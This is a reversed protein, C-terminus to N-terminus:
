ENNARADLLMKMEGAIAKAQVYNFARLARLLSEAQPKLDVFLDSVQQLMEDPVLEQEDLLTDIALLWEKRNAMAVPAILTPDSADRQLSRAIKMVSDFAPLFVELTTPATEAHLESELSRAAQYLDEAGLNGAAGKVAHILEKAQAWNGEEIQQILRVRLDAFDHVLYAMLRCFFAFDGGITQEIRKLDFGPLPPFSPKTSSIPIKRQLITKAGGWRRLAAFLKEPVIPKAVCDNMGAAVCAERDEQLVAATMALVPLAQWRPNARIRRTAELGDMVPMHIDMLVLDFSERELWDLAESGNNAVVVEVGAQVLFERAVQQNIANDEVLLVRVDPFVAMEPISQQVRLATNTDGSLLNMLGDFLSSPTLPKSLVTSIGASQAAVQVSEKDTTTSMMLIPLDAAQEPALARIRKILEVGDIGPMKWDILAVDFRTDQLITLAEEGSAALEVVYDWAELMQRLAERTSALDDVVLVRLHVLSPRLATQQSESLACRATFRFVSGKGAESEVCIEGGMMEVLRRSIALGLGTGGYKRTTSADAQNFPTFLRGVQEPTMGIGTDRVSFELLIGGDDRPMGQVSIQVEGRETFKLANGVLNGLVQGLRLPDGRLNLPLNAAIAFVIEIEKHEATAIFLNGINRLVEELSFEVSEIDLRGAEIKSYDLIDNLIGLLSASSLHIKELYDRQKADLNTALALQALGIVANMPTRIEHSMNALFESKARNAGEAARKAELLAMEAAKQDTLDNLVALLLEEGGLRIRTLDVSLWVIRGFSTQIEGEFRNHQGSRMTEIGLDRLGSERAVTSDLLKFGILQGAGTGMINAAAQNAIVVEGGANAVIIGASTEEIVRRSLDGLENIQQEAFLHETLDVFMVLHTEGSPNLHIAFTRFEGSKCRIRAEVPPAHEGALAKGLYDLWTSMVEQRYDPDPYALPWWHAVDPIEEQTYGLIEIFRHNLYAVTLAEGEAVLMPIPANEILQRLRKEAARIETVDVGFSITTLDRGPDGMASNQWSITREVGSRTLIPNEFVKPMLGQAQAKGFIEWVEPYRERPVVLSFWDHGLIEDRFYGTLREAAANFIVVRGTSDLGLVMVNATEILQEAFDKARRLDDQMRIRESIDRYVSLIAPEGDYEVLQANVEVPIHRGDHTVSISDFIAVGKQKVSEAIEHTSVFAEPATIDTPYLKRIEERTYGLQKCIAENADAFPKDFPRILIGDGAGEFLIRYRKESDALSEEAARLFHIDDEIARAMHNFAGALQQIEEFGEEHARVAYDGAAMREALGGMRALPQALRRWTWIALWCLGVLMALSLGGAVQLLVNQQRSLAATKEDARQAVRHLFLQLPEVVRVRENLYSTSYLMQRALDLNAQGVSDTVGYFQGNVAAIANREVQMLRDTQVLAEMLLAVDDKGLKERRLMDYYSIREGDQPIEQMAIRRHWYTEDYRQPRARKGNRIEVIENYYNEFRKDGTDAYARAMRTLDDASQLIEDALRSLRVRQLEQVRLAQQNNQIQVLTSGLLLLMGLMALVFLLLPTKIKM